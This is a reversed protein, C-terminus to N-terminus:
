ARLPTGNASLPTAIGSRRARRGARRPRRADHRRLVRSGMPAARPGRRLLGDGRSGPRDREDRSATRLRAPATRHRPRLDTGGREHDRLLRRDGVAGDARPPRLPREQLHQSRDRGARRAPEGGPAAAGPGGRPAAPARADGALHGIGTRLAGPGAYIGTLPLPRLPRVPQSLLRRVGAPLPLAAPLHLAMCRIDCPTWSTRDGRGTVMTLTDSISPISRTRTTTAWGSSQSKPSAAVVAFHVSAPTM